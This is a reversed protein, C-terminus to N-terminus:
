GAGGVLRLHGRQGTRPRAHRAGARHRGASARGAAFGDDYGGDRVADLIVNSLFQNRYARGAQETLRAVEATIADVADARDRIARFQGTDVEM